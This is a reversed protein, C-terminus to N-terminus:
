GGKGLQLAITNLREKVLQAVRQRSFHTAIHDRAAEGLRQATQRDEFVQRMLHRLHAVSPEAWRRGRFFEAEQWAAQSVDAEVCNILYSNNDNMFELPGSYRTGITPLGMLMAEMFPRGWGEGRTPLVFADATRYLRPMDSGPLNAQYIVINRPFSHALEAARLEDVIQARLHDAFHGSHYGVKITLSVEENHRFEEVFARVLVDWGKRRSWQFVSLFNFRRRGAISLPFLDLRYRETDIGEPIKVLKERVVGSRAFGEVNFACPVWVEDMQNCAAVWDPPISDTECMTRGIHFTAQPFRRFNPAQLHIVSILPGSLVDIQEVALERLRTTENVPLKIQETSWHRLPLVRLPVGAADLGLVFHRAEDAYGSADFIPAHWIVTPSPLPPSPAAPRNAKIVSTSALTAAFLDRNGNHWSDTPCITLAHETWQLAEAIRGMHFLANTYHIIWHYRFDLPNIACATTPMSLQQGLEAWQIVQPWDKLFYYTEALSFHALPWHPCIKLAAQAADVAKAYRAQQRHLAAIKLQALYKEDSWASLPLYRCLFEIAQQVDGCHAYEYGLYLLLRADPHSRTRAYEDKLIDLNRERYGADRAGQRHHVVIIEPTWAMMVSARSVLVEHVRGVWHFTGDNRVCRERWLECTLNGHTDHSVHYKWYFGKIEPPAAQISSRIQHANQVIDDADIWFVWDGTARAFAFQRAAAFDKNWPYEYLCKTYQRAIARTRDMSGTDVVVIEDVSGQISQLCRSLVQEENKVILAASIKV